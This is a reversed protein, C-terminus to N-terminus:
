CEFTDPSPLEYWQTLTHIEKRSRERHQEFIELAHEHAATAIVMLRQEYSLNAIRLMRFLEHSEDCDWEGDNTHATEDHPTEDHPLDNESFYM